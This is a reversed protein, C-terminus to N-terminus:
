VEQKAPLLEPHKEFYRDRLYLGATKYYEFNNYDPNNYIFDEVQKFLDSEKSNILYRILGVCFSEVDLASKPGSEDVMKFLADLNKDISDRFGMKEIEMIGEPTIELPSGKKYLTVNKVDGGSEIAGCLRIIFAELSKFPKDVKEIKKDISEEMTNIRKEIFFYVIFGLVILPVTKDLTFGLDSLISGILNKIAEYEIM